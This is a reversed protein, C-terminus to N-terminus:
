YKGALREQWAKEGVAAIKCRELLAAGPVFTDVLDPGNEVLAQGTAPLTDWVRRANERSIAGAAWRAQVDGTLLELIERFPLYPDGIGTYANCNGSAVILDPQAEM